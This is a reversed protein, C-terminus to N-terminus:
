CLLKFYFHPMQKICTLLRAMLKKFCQARSKTKRIGGTEKKRRSSSEATKKNECVKKAASALQGTELHKQFTVIM